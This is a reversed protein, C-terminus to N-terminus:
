SSPQRTSVKVCCIPARRATPAFHISALRAILERNKEEPFPTTCRMRACGPRSMGSPIRAFFAATAATFASLTDGHVLVGRPRRLRASRRRPSCSPLSTGAHGARRDSLCLKRIGPADRLLSLTAMGHRRAATHLVCVREGTARLARYVPAMKIIEPRTGM